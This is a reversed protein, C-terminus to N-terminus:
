RDVPAQRDEGPRGFGADIHRYRHHAACLLRLNNPEAGGGCAYPVVHDIQLLHQSGCRRGSIRDVYRCRGRDRRWVERKVAAPIARGTVGTKAASTRTRPPAAPQACAAAPRGLRRTKPASTADTAPKAASTDPRDAAQGGPQAPAQASVKAASPAASDASTEQKAASAAGRAAAAQTKAASTQEAGKAPAARRGRPPRAPDHRDLGERVLRGMLQGMTLHPDVHSLLGQLRELGRRCEDDIVTKLEWRGGGLPRVRDAPAALEPDVEALLQMVERSSKGSAQEVLERRAESDLVPVPKREAPRAPASGEQSQAAAGCGAGGPASRAAREKKREQRDFAHQLQAAANLTMTGNQLRERAGEVDACLRMAKIRRWAAADSYGLERVAYDFLSSFGRRLYLRRKHIERLHDIVVVELHHEIGSLEKTRELLRDDSLASVTTTVAGDSAHKNMIYTDDHFSNSDLEEARFIGGAPTVRRRMEFRSSTGDSAVASFTVPTSLARDAPYRLAPKPPPAPPTSPLCAPVENRVGARDMASHLERLEIIRPDTEYLDHFRNYIKTGENNNVM